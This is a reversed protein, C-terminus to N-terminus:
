HSRVRPTGLYRLDDAARRLDNRTDELDQKLTKDAEEASM